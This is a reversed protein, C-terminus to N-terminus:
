DRLVKEFLPRIGAPLGALLRRGIDEKALLFTAYQTEDTTMKCDKIMMMMTGIKEKTKLISSVEKTISEAQAETLGLQMWITPEMM